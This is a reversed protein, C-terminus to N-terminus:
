AHFDPGAADRRDRCGDPEGRCDRARRTESRWVACLWSRLAFGAALVIVGLVFGPVGLFAWLLLAILLAAAAIFNPAAPMATLLADIIPPVTATAVADAVENLTVVGDPTKKPPTATVEGAAIRHM